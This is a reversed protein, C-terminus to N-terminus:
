REAVSAIVALLGGLAAAVAMAAYALVGFRAYLLGALGMAVAMALGLAVALIGQATAAMEAPASRALLGVAGLHTAGFSLAHLCQLLPLLLIPPDLAMIGWRLVAGGAGALLLTTAAAPLRPSLAFLIIEAVVGLAWLAGIAEGSLGVSQWQLTSFGYYIAHSAQVLGASGAAALVAPDRLLVRASLSSAPLARSAGLPALAAAAIATLLMAATVLWILDRPALVDLLLGAGCSGVIFAASGWLRVPGYGRGFPALGRLAYADALPMIPTHFASAIAFTVAIAAAAQSM